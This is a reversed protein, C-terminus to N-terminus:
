INIFFPFAKFDDGDIQLFYTNKRDCFVMPFFMRINTYYITPVVMNRSM